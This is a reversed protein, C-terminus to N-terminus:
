YARLSCSNQPWRENNARPVLRDGRSEERAFLESASTNIFTATHVDKDRRAVGFISRYWRGISKSMLNPSLQIPSLICAYFGEIVLSYLVKCHVDYFGISRKVIGREFLSVFLRDHFDDYSAIVSESRLEDVLKRLVPVLHYCTRAMTLLKRCAWLWHQRQCKEYGAGQDSVLVSIACVATVGGFACSVIVVSM